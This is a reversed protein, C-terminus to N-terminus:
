SHSKVAASLVAPAPIDYHNGNKYVSVKERIAAKIAARASPSQARLTAAARVTGTALLEYVQDPDSVRWVQPVQRCSPSTFGTELLAKRSYDPDSFLFYNPGTPLGVDLTGHARVAAYVLGFAVAREPVDFVTFAIRGGPKLVRHAERLAVDPNPLHCIGFSNVVADFSDPDYPLAEADALEFRLGPYKSKASKVQAASFDIGTADAGRQAAAAVVNGSGTAVDLVRTNSQVSAADLLAGISQASIHAFHQESLAVVRADEWGAQEFDRFTQSSDAM